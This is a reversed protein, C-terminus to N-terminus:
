INLEDTDELEDLKITKPMTVIDKTVVEVIDIDLTPVAKEFNRKDLKLFLGKDKSWELAEAEDYQLKTTSRIGFGGKVKKKGTKQYEQLVDEKIIGELAEMETKIEQQKNKLSDMEDAITAELDAKQKKISEAKDKLAIYNKVITKDM